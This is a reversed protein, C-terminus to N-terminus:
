QHSGSDEIKEFDVIIQALLTTRFGARNIEKLIEGIEKSENLSVDAALGLKQLFFERLNEDM